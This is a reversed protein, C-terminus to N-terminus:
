RVAASWGATSTGVCVQGIVQASAGHASLGAALMLAVIGGPCRVLWGTSRMM